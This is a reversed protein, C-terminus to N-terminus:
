SSRSRKTPNIIIVRCKKTEDAFASEIRNRNLLVSLEQIKPNNKVIYTQYKGKPKTRNDKFYARFEKSLVDKQVNALEVVTLIAKTHHDIRDQLTLVEGNKLLVARGAGIGGQEYTMGVAGNYCPYTDGYSPYFLDFRESSYYMWGEKDFKKPLRESKKIFIM